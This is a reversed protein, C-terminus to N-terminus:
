ELTEDKVDDISTKHDEIYSSEKVAVKRWKELDEDTLHGALTTLMCDERDVTHIYGEKPVVYCKYKNRTLRMLFETGYMFSMSSKFGGIVLFDEKNFVGGSLTYDMFAMLSKYDIFGMEEAFSNAWVLENGFLWGTGEVNTRVTIPLFVSVDEHTNYYTKWMNFWKNTYLDDYELISFYETECAEVGAGLLTFFDSDTSTVIKSTVPQGSVLDYVDNYLTAVTSVILTLGDKYQESCECVSQIARKIMGIEESKVQHIPMIVSVPMNMSNEKSEKKM